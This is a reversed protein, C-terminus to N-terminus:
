SGAVFVVPWHGDPEGELFSGDPEVGAVGVPGVHDVRQGVERADLGVGPRLVRPCGSEAIVVEAPREGVVADVVLVPDKVQGCEVEGRGVFEPRVLLGGEVRPV